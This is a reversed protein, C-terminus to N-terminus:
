DDSDIIKIYEEIAKALAFNRAASVGQCDQWHTLRIRADERAAQRLLEPSRDTSGATVCLIEIDSLTQGRVSELCKELYDATNHVPILVSVKTM